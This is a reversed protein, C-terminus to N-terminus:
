DSKKKDQTHKENSLHAPADAEMKQTDYPTGDREQELKRKKNPAKRSSVKTQAEADESSL